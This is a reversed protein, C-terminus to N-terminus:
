EVVSCLDRAGPGRRLWCEMNGNGPRGTGPRGGNESVAIKRLQVQKALIWSLTFVVNPGIRCLHALPLLFLIWLGHGGGM